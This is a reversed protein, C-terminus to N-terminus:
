RGARRRKGRLLVHVDNVMFDKKVKPNVKVLDPALDILQGTDEDLFHHHYSVNCDYIVKASHPLKFEKILNAEVLANLTNYITALSLKPFGQDAWDKIKEATPHDAESLIYYYIAIRQATPQVGAAKLKEVIIKTDFVHHSGDM